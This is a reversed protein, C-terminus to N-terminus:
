STPLALLVLLPDTLTYQTMKFRHLSVPADFLAPDEKLWHGGRATTTGIRDKNPHWYSDINFRNSPVESWASRGKFLMEFLAPPSTADEPYRCALGVVAVPKMKDMNTDLLFETNHSDFM